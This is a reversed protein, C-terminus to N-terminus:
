SRFSRLLDRHWCNMISLASETGVEAFGVFFVRPEDGNEGRMLGRFTQDVFATMGFVGWEVQFDCRDATAISERRSCGRLQALGVDSIRNQFSVERRGNGM